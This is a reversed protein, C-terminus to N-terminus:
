AQEISGVVDRAADRVEELWDERQQECAECKPVGDEDFEPDTEWHEDCRDWDEAGDWSWGEVDYLVNDYHDYKEQLAENGYEWQDLAEQYSDRLESVEDAVAQVAAEIEDVTTLSGVEDDFSEQAAMVSAFKSSERESPRPYCESRLCRKHKWTSRFGVTFWLYGEGAPLPKGCRECQGQDQRAKKVVNLKATSM